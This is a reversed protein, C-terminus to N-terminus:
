RARAGAAARPAHLARLDGEPLGAGAVLAGGLARDAAAGARDAQRVARREPVRDRVGHLWPLPRLPHGDRALDARGGRPRGAHAPDTRAALGDGGRLRRLEPVDAPLLRLARLGPHSGDRAPSTALGLRRDYASWTRSRSPRHTDM